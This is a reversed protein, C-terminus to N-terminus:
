EGSLSVTPTVFYVSEYVEGDIEERLLLSGVIYPLEATASSPGIVLFQGPELQVRVALERLVLSRGAPRSTDWPARLAQSASSDLRLEPAVELLIADTAAPTMGYDIRLLNTSSRWPAGALTGDRRYVFLIQDKPQANLELLLPLGNSLTVRSQSTQVRSETELIAKIPPWADTRGRAIRVGNRHLLKSTEAPFFDTELHNWLKGSGSFLPAPVRVRLVNFTFITVLVTPRDPEQVGAVPLIGSVAPKAEAEANAAPAPATQPSLTGPNWKATTTANCGPSAPLVTAM